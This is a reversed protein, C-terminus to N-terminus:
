PAVEHRRPWAHHRTREVRASVRVHRGLAQSSRVSSIWPAPLEANSVRWRRAHRALAADRGPFSSEGCHVVGSRALVQGLGHAAVLPQQAARARGRAVDRETWFESDLTILESASTRACPRSVSHAQCLAVLRASRATLRRPGSPVVGCPGSSSLSVAGGRASLGAWPAACVPAGVGVPDSGAGRGKNAQGRWCRVPGCDLWGLAECSRVFGPGSARGTGASFCRAWRCCSSM